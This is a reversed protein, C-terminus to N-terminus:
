HTDVVMHRTRSSAPPLYLLLDALLEQNRRCPVTSFLWCVEQLEHHEPTGLARMDYARRSRSKESARSKKRRPPPSPERALNDISDDSEPDVNAYRTRDRRPMKAAAYPYTPAISSLSPLLEREREKGFDSRGRFSITGCTQAPLIPGFRQFPETDYM